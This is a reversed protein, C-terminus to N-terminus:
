FLPRKKVRAWSRPFDGPYEGRRALSIFGPPGAVRREVELGLGALPETPWRDDTGPPESVVLRGGQVLLSAGIEAVAPAPGFARSVVGNYQFRHSPDRGLDCGDAVVVSVRSEVELERVAQALFAGRSVSRDVLAVEVWPCAVALVLGPVGGGSGLDCWREGPRPDAAGVHARGHEIHSTVPGGGLHGERQSRELVARLEPRDADM